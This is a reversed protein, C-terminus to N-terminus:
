QKSGLYVLYFVAKPTFVAPRGSIHERALPQQIRQTHMESPLNMAHAINRRALRTFDAVHDRRM